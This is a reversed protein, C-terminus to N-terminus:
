ASSPYQGHAGPAHVPKRHGARDKLKLFPKEVVFYSLLSVAIVAAVVGLFRAPEPIGTLLKGAIAMALMHYLYVSYSLRGGFQMIQSNMWDPRLALAQVLLVVTLLPDLIFAINNRFHVGTLVTVTSSFALLILPVALYWRRATLRAWIRGGRKEFLLIALLCGTLLHDARTDLAAYIYGEPVGFAGLVWRYVWFCPIAAFMLRARRDNGRVAMFVAPWILYFQEEIALSWTHFLATEWNGTIAQYYNSTYFFASIAQPWAVPKHRLVGFGIVIVAWFVYFAPFIRLSRRIYFLRLSIDGWKAEEKLLLWTILFGSLVFFITVGLGGNVPLRYHYLVVLLVAITRLSDLGPLVSLRLASALNEPLSGSTAGTPLPQAPDADKLIRSTM